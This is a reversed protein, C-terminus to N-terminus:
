LKEKAAQAANIAKQATTFRNAAIWADTRASPRPEWDWTGDIALCNGVHRVAWLDPGQTQPAREIRIQSDALIYTAVLVDKGAQAQANHRAIVPLEEAVSDPHGLVSLTQMCIDHLWSAREQWYDIAGHLTGNGAAIADDMTPGDASKGTQPIPIVGLCRVEYLIDKDCSSAYKKAEEETCEDWPSWVKDFWWTALSRYQWMIPTQISQNM